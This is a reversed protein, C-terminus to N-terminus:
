SLRSLAAELAKFLEPIDELKATGVSLRFWNSAESAGFAYFPVIALKAENLIYSNVDKITNLTNGEPTVKGILDFQVTLYIAAEPEIVDVAYGKAKLDLFGKYFSILRTNIESKITTLFESVAKDQGLYKATSKSLKQRGLM